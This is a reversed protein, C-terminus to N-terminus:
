KYRLSPEPNATLGERFKRFEVEFIERQASMVAQYDLM